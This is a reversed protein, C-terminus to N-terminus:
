YRYCYNKSISNNLITPGLIYKFFFLIQKSYNPQVKYLTLSLGFASFNFMIDKTTLTNM